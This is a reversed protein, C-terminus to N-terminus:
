RVRRSPTRWKDARHAHGHLCASRIEHRNSADCLYVSIDGAAIPVRERWLLMHQASYPYTLDGQVLPAESEALWLPYEAILLGNESAFSIDWDLPEGDLSAQTDIAHFEFITGNRCALVADISGQVNPPEPFVILDPGQVSQPGQQNVSEASAFGSGFMLASAAVTLAFVALVVTYLRHFNKSCNM